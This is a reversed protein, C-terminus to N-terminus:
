PYVRARASVILADVLRFQNLLQSNIARQEFAKELKSSSPIILQLNSMMTCSGPTPSIAQVVM